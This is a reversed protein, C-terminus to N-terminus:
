DVKIVTRGKYTGCFSCVRHPIKPKGCEPCKSIAHFERKDNARRRMMTKSKSKKFKQIGM